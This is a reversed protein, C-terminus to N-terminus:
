DADNDFGTLYWSGPTDFGAPLNANAFVPKPEHRLRLGAQRIQAEIWPAGYFEVSISQMGAARATRIFARLLPATWRAADPAFFDGILARGAHEHWVVYGQAVGQADIGLHAQWLGRDPVAYRWQLMAASRESLLLSAPRRAWLADFAPDQWDVPRCQLRDPARLARWGDGARLALDLLPATLSVLAPPLRRSLYTRSSL